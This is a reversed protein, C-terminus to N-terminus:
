ASSRRPWAFLWGMGLRLAVAYGLAPLAIGALTIMAVHAFAADSPLLKLTAIRAVGTALPHMLFIALSAGGLWSLAPALRTRGLAGSIALLGAVGLCGFLIDWARLGVGTLSSPPTAPLLAALLAMGAALLTLTSSIAETRRVLGVAIFGLVLFLMFRQFYHPVQWYGLLPILALALAITLAALRNRALIPWAVVTVVFLTVLFWSKQGTLIEILHRPVDAPDEMPSNYYRAFVVAIAYYIASWVLHPWYLTGARRRALSAFDPPPRLALVCGSAFFFAHMHFRYVWDQLADFVDGRQVIEMRDLGQVVHGFVVLCIALAKLVDLTVLRDGTPASAAQNM